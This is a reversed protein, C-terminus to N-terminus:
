QTDSLNDVTGSGSGIVKTVLVPFSAGLYLAALWSNVSDGHVALATILVSGLPIILAKVVFFELDLEIKEQKPLAQRQILDFAIPFFGGFLGTLVYIFSERSEFITAGM